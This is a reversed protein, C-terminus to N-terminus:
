PSLKGLINRTTRGTRYFVSMKGIFSEVQKKQHGSIEPSHVMTTSTQQASLAKQKLWRPQGSGLERALDQGEPLTGLSRRSPVPQCSATITVLRFNNFSTTFSIYYIFHISTFHNKIFYYIDLSTFDKVQNQNRINQEHIM